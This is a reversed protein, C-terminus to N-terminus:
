SAVLPVFRKLKGTHELRSVRDVQRVTVEPDTLGLARLSETLEAALAPLDTAAACRVDVEAGGVTQRVQYELIAARRGLASRFLHPHVTRGSYDFADDWRGQIDAISATLEGCPCRDPLVTLEDSVEYRITPLAHNFLNTVYIKSGPQEPPVPNGAADVVEVIGLDEALHMRGFRCPTGLMGIETAGWHNLAPQGWAAQAAARIEPLLPESTVLIRAPHIRLRGDAAERALLALTSPYSALVKPQEGNLTAVIRELPWTVPCQVNVVAPNRFTTAAAASLHSPHAASVWAITMPGDSLDPNTQLDILTRRLASLWCLAFGDRDYVAVARRGTSGGTALATYEDFLYGPDNGELHVDVDTLRLRDDTVIDDWDAMLEAKTMVPLATLDAPDVADLDIGKLRKRHWPSRDVATSLVARLARRQHAALQDPTWQLRSCFEPALEQARAMHAARLQELEAM